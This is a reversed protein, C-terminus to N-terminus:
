VAGYVAIPEGGAGDTKTGWIASAIASTKHIQAYGPRFAEQQGGIGAALWCVVTIVLMARRVLANNMTSRVIDNKDSTGLTKM